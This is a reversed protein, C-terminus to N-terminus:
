TGPGLVREFETTVEAVLMGVVDRISECIEMQVNMKAAAKDLPTVAFPYETELGIGAANAIQDGLQVISAQIAHKGARQPAHHHQATGFISHEIGYIDLILPVLETHTMNVTRRETELINLQRDSSAERATPARDAVLSQITPKGIDHFVAGFFILDCAMPHFGLAEGVKRSAIATALTHRWLGREAYGYWPLPDVMLDRFFTAVFTINRFAAVGVRELLSLLNHPTDGGRGFFESAGSSLVLAALVPDAEIATELGEPEPGAPKSAETVMAPLAKMTQALVTSARQEAEGREFVPKLGNETGPGFAFVKDM